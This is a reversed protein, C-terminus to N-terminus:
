RPESETTGLIEAAAQRTQWDHDALHASLSSEVDAGDFAALAVVARRRIAPADSLAALVAAKGAPDGIA